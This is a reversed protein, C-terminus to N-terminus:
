QVTERAHARPLLAHFGSLVGLTKRRRHRPNTPATGFVFDTAAGFNKLGWNAEIPTDRQPEQSATRSGIM